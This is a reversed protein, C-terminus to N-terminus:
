ARAAPLYVTFTSGQGLESQVHISGGHAHIISRALALGLGTGPLSHEIPSHMRRAAKLLLALSGTLVTSECSRM